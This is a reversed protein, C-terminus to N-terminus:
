ESITVQMKHLLTYKQRVTLLLKNKEYMLSDTQIILNWAENSADTDAKTSAFKQEYKIKREKLFLLDSKLGITDLESSKDESKLNKFSVYGLLPLLQDAVMFAKDGAMFEISVKQNGNDTKTENISTLLCNCSDIYSLLQQKSTEYNKGAYITVVATKVIIQSTSYFQCFLLFLMITTKRILAQTKMIKNKIYNFYFSLLQAATPRGIALM